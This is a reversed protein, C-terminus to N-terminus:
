KRKVNLGDHFDGIDSSTSCAHIAAGTDMVIRKGRRQLPFPM